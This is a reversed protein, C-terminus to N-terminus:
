PNVGDIADGLAYTFTELALLLADYAAMSLGVAVIGKRIKEDWKDCFRLLGRCLFLLTPLYTRSAM